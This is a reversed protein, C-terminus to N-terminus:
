IRANHRLATRNRLKTNIGCCYSPMKSGQLIIGLDTKFNRKNCSFKGCVQIEATRQTKIVFRVIGISLPEGIVIHKVPVHQFKHTASMTLLGGPQESTKVRLACASRSFISFTFPSFSLFSQSM